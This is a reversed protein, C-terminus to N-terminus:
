GNEQSKRLRILVIAIASLILGVILWIWTNDSKKPEEIIAPHKIITGRPVIKKIPEHEPSPKKETDDDIPNSIEDQVSSLSEPETELEKKYEPNTEPEPEPEPETEEYELLTEFGEKECKILLNKTSIKSDFELNNNEAFTVLEERLAKLYERKTM